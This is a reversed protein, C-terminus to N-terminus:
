KATRQIQIKDERFICGTMYGSWGFTPVGGAKECLAVAEEVKLRDVGGSWASSCGVLALAVIVLALRSASGSVSLDSKM